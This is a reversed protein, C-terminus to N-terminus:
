GRCVLEHLHLSDCGCAFVTTMLLSQAQKETGLVCAWVVQALPSGGKATLNCCATRNNPDIELLGERECVAGTTCCCDVILRKTDLFVFPKAVAGFPKCVSM